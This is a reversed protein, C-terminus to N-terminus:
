AQAREVALSAVSSPALWPAGEWRKRRIRRAIRVRDSTPTPTSSSPSSSSSCASTAAVLVLGLVPALYVRRAKHHFRM